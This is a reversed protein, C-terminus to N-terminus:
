AGFSLFHLRLGSHRGQTSQGKNEKEPFDLVELAVLVQPLYWGRRGTPHKNHHPM